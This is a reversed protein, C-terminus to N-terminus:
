SKRSRRLVCLGLMVSIMCVTRPEPITVTTITGNIRYDKSRTALDSGQLSWRAVDFDELNLNVPLIENGDFVSASTDIFEVRLAYVYLLSLLLTPGSSDFGHSFRDISGFGSSVSSGLINNEARIYNQNSDIEIVSSGISIAILASYADGYRWKDPDFTFFGSVSDGVSVSGLLGGTYYDVEDVVGEYRFTTVAGMASIALALTLPTITFLFFKM